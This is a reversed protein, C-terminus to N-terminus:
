QEATATGVEGDGVPNGEEAKVNAPADAEGNPTAAAEAANAAEEEEAKLKRLREAEEAKHDEIKKRVQM